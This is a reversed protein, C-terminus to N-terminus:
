GKFRTVIVLWGGVVLLVFFSFDIWWPVYGEILDLIPMIKSVIWIWVAMSALIVLVRLAQELDGLMNRLEVYFNICDRLDKENIEKM